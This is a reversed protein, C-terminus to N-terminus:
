GVGPEGVLLVSSRASLAECLADVRALKSPPLWLESDALDKAFPPERLSFNSLTSPTM